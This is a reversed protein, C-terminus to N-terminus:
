QRITYGLRKYNQSPKFDTSTSDIVLVLNRLPATAASARAVNVTLTGFSQNAPIVVNGGNVLTFSGPATTTAGQDVFVRVTLDAPRQPGVLNLRATVSATATTSNATALLPYTRGVAPTNVIAQQFEILTGEDYVKDITEFCATMGCVLFVAAVLQVLKKM